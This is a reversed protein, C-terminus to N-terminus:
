MVEHMSCLTVSHFHPPLFRDLQRKYMSENEDSCTCCPFVRHPNELFLVRFQPSIVPIESCLFAPQAPSLWHIRSDVSQVRNVRFVSQQTGRSLGEADRAWSTTVVSGEGAEGSTELGM